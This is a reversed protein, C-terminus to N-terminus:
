TLRLYLIVDSFIISM